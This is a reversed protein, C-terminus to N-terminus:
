NFTERGVEKCIVIQRYQAQHQMCTVLTLIKDEENLKESVEYKSERNVYEIYGAFFGPDPNGSVDENMNRRMFNLEYDNDIDIIFVNTVVYERIENNLILKLNKNAEYNEEELLLDLPTFLKDGAPDYDRAFHHGYIILNQDDLSNTFDMFVSGGEGHPDYKGTRWNTWIYVDNGTYGEPYTVLDGNETYFTYLDGNSNYVNKAQVVPLDVLGSDFIINGVYDSNVAKNALWMDKLKPDMRPEDPENEKIEIVPEGSVVNSNDADRGNFFTIGFYVSVILFLAGLMYYIQWRQDPEYSTRSLDMDPMEPGDDNNLFEFEPEQEVTEEKTEEFEELVPEENEELEEEATLPEANATEEDTEETAEEISEENNCTKESTVELENLAKEADKEEPHTETDPEQLDPESYSQPESTNYSVEQIDERNDTQIQSIEEAAENMMGIVESFKSKAEERAAKAKAAMIENKAKASEEAIHAFKEKRNKRKSRREKFKKKNESILEEIDASIAEEKSEESAAQESASPQEDSVKADDSETINDFTNNIEAMLSEADFSQKKKEAKNDLSNIMEEAAALEDIEKEKKKM